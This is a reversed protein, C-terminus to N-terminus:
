SAEATLGAPSLERCAVGQGDWRARDAELEAPNEGPIVHHKAATYGHKLANRSSRPRDWSAKACAAPRSREYM